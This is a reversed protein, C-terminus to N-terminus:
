YVSGNSEGNMMNLGCLGKLYSVEVAQIRSIAAESWTWTESAYTLTVVIISGRM